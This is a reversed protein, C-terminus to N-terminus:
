DKGDEIVIEYDEVVPNALMRECMEKVRERDGDSLEMEILKGIRVEEVEEFGLNRLARLVVQGQVDLVGEKLRIYVKVKM